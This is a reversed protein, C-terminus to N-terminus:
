QEPMRLSTRNQRFWLPCSLTAGGDRPLESAPLIRALNTFDDLREFIDQTRKDGASERCSWTANITPRDTAFEDTLLLIRAM